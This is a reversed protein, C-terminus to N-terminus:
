WRFIGVIRYYVYFADLKGRPDDVRSLQLQQCDAACSCKSYQYNCSSHTLLAAVSITERLKVVNLTSTLINDYGVNM